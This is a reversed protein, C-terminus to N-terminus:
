FACVFIHNHIIAKLLGSGSLPCNHEPWHAVLMDLYLLVCSHQLSPLYLAWYMLTLVLNPDGWVQVWIFALHQLRGTIGATPLHLCCWPLTALQTLFIPLNWHKLIDPLSYDLFIQCWGHDEVHMHVCIYMRTGVHKCLCIWVHMCWVYMCICFITYILSM